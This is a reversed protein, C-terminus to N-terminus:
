NQLNILLAASIKVSEMDKKQQSINLKKTAKNLDKIEQNFIKQKPLGYEKRMYKMGKSLSTKSKNLNIDNLKQVDDSTVSQSTGAWIFNTM